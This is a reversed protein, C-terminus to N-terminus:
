LGLFGAVKGALNKADKARQDVWDNAIAEGKTAIDEVKQLENESPRLDIIGTVGEKRLQATVQPVNKSTLGGRGPDNWLSIPAVKELQQIASPTLRDYREVFSVPQGLKKAYGLMRNVETQDMKAGASGVNIEILAHPFAKRVDAGYKDLEGAGLNFALRGDPVGSAKVAKIINPLEFGDKVDLKLGRGSAKGKQLWEPLSMTGGLEPGPDHRTEIGDGHLAKRIDGEFWNFSGDKLAADFEERTNTRHANKGESLPRGAWWTSPSHLKGNEFVDKTAAPKKAPSDGRWFEAKRVVGKIDGILSMTGITDPGV